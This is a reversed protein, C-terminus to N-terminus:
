MVFSMVLTLITRDLFLEQTSVVHKLRWKTTGYDELIWVLLQSMNYFDACCLCLHWQAQHISMEAGRPKPITRWTKGEMDVVVIVSYEFMHMFGNLSVSRSKSRLVISGKGWESEKFIWAVIKSSYIEVGVCAGEVEVFEIMHFHSYTPDFGLRAQGVSYISRSLVHWKHTM